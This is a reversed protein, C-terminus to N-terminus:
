DGAGKDELFTRVEGIPKWGLGLRTEGYKECLDLYTTVAPRLEAFVGPPPAPLEDGRM